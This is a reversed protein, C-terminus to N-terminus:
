VIPPWLLCRLAALAATSVCGFPDPFRGVGKVGGHPTDLSHLYELGEAVDLVQRTRLSFDSVSQLGMIVATERVLSSRPTHQQPQRPALYQNINGNGGWDYVLALQFETTNIGRFPLVNKHRLNMWTPTRKSLIQLRTPSLNMLVSQTSVEKAEKLNEPPYIRFAKIAVPYGHLDGRWVDTSRGPTVAVGHRKKLGTSLLASAPLQLFLM